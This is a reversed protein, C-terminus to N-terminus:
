MKKWCHYTWQSTDTDFSSSSENNLLYVSKEEEGVYSKIAIKKVYKKCRYNFFQNSRLMNDPQSPLSWSVKPVDVSKMRGNKSMLMMSDNVKEKSFLNSSSLILKGFKKEAVRSSKEDMRKLFFKGENIPLIQKKHWLVRPFLNPTSM